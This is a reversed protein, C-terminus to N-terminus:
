KWDEWYMVYPYMEKDTMGNIDDGNEFVSGARIFQGEDTCRLRFIGSSEEGIVLGPEVACDALLFFRETRENGIERVDAVEFGNGDVQLERGDLISRINEDSGIYVECETGQELRYVVSDEIEPHIERKVPPLRDYRGRIIGNDVLVEGSLIKGLLVTGSCGGALLDEQIYRAAKIRKLIRYEGDGNIKTLDFCIPRYVYGRFFMDSIWVPGNNLDGSVARYVAKASPLGSVFCERAPHLILRYNPVTSVASLM